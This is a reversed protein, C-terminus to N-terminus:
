LLLETLTPYDYCCEILVQNYTCLGPIQYSYQLLGTIHLIVMVPCAEQCAEWCCGCLLVAFGAQQWSVLECRYMDCAFVNFLDHKDCSFLTLVDSDM